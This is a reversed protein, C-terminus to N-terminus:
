EEATGRLMVSTSWLNTHLMDLALWYLGVSSACMVNIVFLMGWFFDNLRIWIQFIQVRVLQTWTAMYQLLFHLSGVKDCVVQHSGM